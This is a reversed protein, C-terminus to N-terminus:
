LTEHISGGDVKDQVQQVRNSRFAQIGPAEALVNSRARPQKWAGREANKTGPPEHGRESNVDRM